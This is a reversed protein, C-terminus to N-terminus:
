ILLKSTVTSRTRIPECLNQFHRILRGITKGTDAKIQALLNYTLFVMAVHRESTQSFGQHCKLGLNQNCDRFLTEIRWRRRYGTIVERTTLDVDTPVLFLHEKEECSRKPRIVVVRSPPCDHRSMVFSRAYVKQESYYHFSEVPLTQAWKKLQIYENSLWWKSDKRPKSILGLALRKLNRRFGAKFYAGDARIGKIPIGFSLFHQIMEDTVQFHKDDIKRFGVVQTLVGKTWTLVAYAQGQLVRKGSSCYVPKAEMNSTNEKAAVVIDVLLEGYPPLNAITSDFMTEIPWGLIDAQLFESLEITKVGTEAQIAKFTPKIPSLILGCSYAM